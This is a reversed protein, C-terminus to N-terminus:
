AIHKNEKTEFSKSHFFLDGKLHGRWPNTFIERFSVAATQVQFYIPSSSSEAEKQNWLIPQFILDVWFILWIYNYLYVLGM